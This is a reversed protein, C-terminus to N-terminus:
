RGGNRKGPLTPSRGTAVWSGPVPVRGVVVCGGFPQVRVVLPPMRQGHRLDSEPVLVAAAGRPRRQRAVLLPQNTSVVPSSGAVGQKCLLISLIVWWRETPLLGP